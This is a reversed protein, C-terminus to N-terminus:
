QTTDHENATSCVVLAAPLARGIERKLMEMDYSSAQFGHCLMVLM